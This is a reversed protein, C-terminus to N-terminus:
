EMTRHGEVNVAVTSRTLSTGFPRAACFPEAPGPDHNNGHDQGRLPVAICNAPLRDLLGPIWGTTTIREQSSSSLRITFGHASNGGPEEGRKIAM